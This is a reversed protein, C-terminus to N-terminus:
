ARGRGPASPPRARCNPLAFTSVGNGGYSNGLVQFLAVNQSLPLLQGQCFAWGKPPFIFGFISVQGIFPDM